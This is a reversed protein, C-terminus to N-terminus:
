DHWPMAPAEDSLDRAVRFGFIDSSTTEPDRGRFSPRQREIRTRWSGGRVARHSCPQPPLVAGGDTPEDPYPLVSCDAVWEWVSGIMDHVGFANSRYRGAESRVPSQDDCQAAAGPLQSVPHDILRQLASQDLVNGYLCIDSAEDGWPWAFQSGARAVYEWEAESLLRYRHGTIDSLWNTYAVADLWSVCVVPLKSDDLAPYGDADLAEQEVSLMGCSDSRTMDTSSLFAAFEAETVEFRGVAFQEPLTILRTPGHPRVSGDRMVSSRAEGMVFQGAPVVIMAPCYECDKFRTGASWTEAVLPETLLIFVIVALVWWSRRSILGGPRLM